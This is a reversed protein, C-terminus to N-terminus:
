CEIVASNIAIQRFGERIRKDDQDSSEEDGDGSEVAPKATGM